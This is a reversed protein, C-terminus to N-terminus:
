SDEIKLLVVDEKKDMEKEEKKERRKRHWFHRVTYM